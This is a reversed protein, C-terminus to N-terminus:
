CDKMQMEWNDIKQPRNIVILCMWGLVDLYHMSAPKLVPTAILPM